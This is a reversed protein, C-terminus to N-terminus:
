ASPICNHVLCLRQESPPQMRTPSSLCYVFGRQHTLHIYISHLFVFCPLPLSLSLPPHPPTKILLTLKDRGYPLSPIMGVEPLLVKCVWPIAIVFQSAQHMGLIALLGICNFSLSCHSVPNCSWHPVPGTSGQLGHYPSQVKKKTLQSVVPSESFLPPM